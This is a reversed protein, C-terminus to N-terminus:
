NREYTLNDKNKRILQPDTVLELESEAARFGSLHVYHWEKIDDISRPKKIYSVEFMWTLNPDKRKLVDGINFKPKNM